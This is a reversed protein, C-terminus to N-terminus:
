KKSEDEHNLPQYGDPHNMEINIENTAGGDTVSNEPMKHDLQSSNGIENRKRRPSKLEFCTKLPTGNSEECEITYSQREFRNMGSTILCTASADNYEKEKKKKARLAARDKLLKAAKKELEDKNKEMRYLQTFKNMILPLPIAILPIGTLALTASIVKGWATRPALDGYGVSLKPICCIQLDVILYKCRIM